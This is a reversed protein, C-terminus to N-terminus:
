WPLSLRIQNHGMSRVLELDEDCFSLENDFTDLKPYYPPGKFVVNTGHFFRERGDQDVVMNTHSDITPILNGTISPPLLKACWVTAAFQFIFGVLLIMELTLWPCTSSPLSATCNLSNWNHNQLLTGNDARCFWRTRLGTVNRLGTM